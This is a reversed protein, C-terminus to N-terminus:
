VMWLPPMQIESDHPRWMHLVTATNNIYKSKPPHYQIVCEEPEFFLDKILCMEPWTPIRNILSVSVHDWGEGDSAIVKLLGKKTPIMFLGYNVNAPSSFLGTKVRHKEAKKHPQKRM